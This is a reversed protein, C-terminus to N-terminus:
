TTRRLTGNPTGKLLADVVSETQKILEANDFRWVRQWRSANTGPPDYQLGCGHWGNFNLGFWVKGFTGIFYSGHILCIYTPGVTLEDSGHRTTKSLDVETFQPTDSV